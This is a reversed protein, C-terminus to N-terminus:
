KVAFIYIFRVFKFFGSVLPYLIIVNIYLKLVSIVYNLFYGVNLLSM